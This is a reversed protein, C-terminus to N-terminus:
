YKKKCALEKSSEFLNHSYGLEESKKFSECALYRPSNKTLLLSSGKLFYAEGADSKPNQLYKDIDIVNQKFVSIKNKFDSGVVMYFGIRARLFYIYNNKNQLKPENLLLIAESANKYAEELDFFPNNIKLDGENNLYKTGHHITKLWIADFMSQYFPIENPYNKDEWENFINIAEKNIFYSKKYFDELKNSEIRDRLRIAKLAIKHLNYANTPPEEIDLKTCKAVKLWDDNYLLTKRLDLTLLNLTHRGDTLSIRESSGPFVTPISPKIILKNENQLFPQSIVKQTYFIDELSNKFLRKIYENDQYHSASDFKNIIKIDSVENNSSFSIQYIKFNEVSPFNLYNNEEKLSYALPKCLLRLQTNEAKIEEYNFFGLFFFLLLFKYFRKM